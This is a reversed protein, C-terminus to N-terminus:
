KRRAPRALYQKEYPLGKVNYNTTTSPFFWSKGNTSRRRRRRRHVSMFTKRWRRESNKINETWICRAAFKKLGREKEMAWINSPFVKKKTKVNRQTKRRICLLLTYIVVQNCHKKHTTTLSHALNGVDDDTAHRTSELCGSDLIKAERSAEAARVWSTLVCM